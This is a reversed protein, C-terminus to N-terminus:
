RELVVFSYPYPNVDDAAFSLRSIEKWEDRDFKPFYANGEVSAHVETLYLRACRILGQTYLDAGGILMVQSVNNVEADMKAMDIASELNHAVLVGEVRWDPQRTVVINARGPLPSGISDFTKRGMIVPHGMTIKKFYKLDEPLRWPLANDRGIVGNEAVAVVISLEFMTM